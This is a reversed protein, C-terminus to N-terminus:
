RADNGQAAWATREEYAARAIKLQDWGSFRGDCLTNLDGDGAPGHRRIIACAFYGLENATLYISNLLGIAQEWYEDCKIKRNGADNACACELLLPYLQAYRAELTFILSWRDYFHVIDKAAVAPLLTILERCCDLPPSLWLGSTLERVRAPTVEATRPACHNRVCEAVAPMIEDLKNLTALCDILLANKLRSRTMRREFLDYAVRSLLFTFIGGLFGYATSTGAEGTALLDGVLVLSPCTPM